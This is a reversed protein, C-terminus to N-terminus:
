AHDRDTSSDEIADLAAKYIGVRYDVHNIDQNDFGDIAFQTFARYNEVQDRYQIVQQEAATLRDRLRKIQELRELMDRDHQAQLDFVGHKEDDAERNLAVAGWGMGGRRVYVCTDGFQDFTSQLKAILASIKWMRPNEEDFAAPTREGACDPCVTPRGCDFCHLSKQAHGAPQRRLMPIIKFIGERIKGITDERAAEDTVGEPTEGKICDQAQELVRELRYLLTSFEASTGSATMRRTGAELHQARSSKWALVTSKQYGQFLEALGYSVM